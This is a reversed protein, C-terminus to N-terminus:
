IKIQFLLIHINAQKIGFIKKLALAFCVHLTFMKQQLSSQRYDSISNNGIYIVDNSFYLIKVFCIRSLILLSVIM